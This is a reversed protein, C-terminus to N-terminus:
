PVDYGRATVAGIAPQTAAIEGGRLGFKRRIQVGHAHQALYVGHYVFLGRLRGGLASSAARLCARSDWASFALM